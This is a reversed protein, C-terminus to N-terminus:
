YYVLKNVSYKATFVSGESAKHQEIRRTLNNTFGIYLTGNKKSALLYVYYKKMAM